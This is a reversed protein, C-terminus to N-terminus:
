GSAGTPSSLPEPGRPRSSAVVRSETPRLDLGHQRAGGKALPPRRLWSWAGRYGRDPCPGIRVIAGVNAPDAIGHLYVCAGQGLESWRQAWVAIARTGSGLSSVSALLDPEVEVGGLGSGAASLLFRPKAGAALGAEILDEGETLSRARM